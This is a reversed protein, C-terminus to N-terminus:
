VVSAVKLSEPGPIARGHRGLVDCYVSEIRREVSQFSFERQARRRANLGLSKRLIPDNILRELARSLDRVYQNRNEVAIKIGSSADISRQPGGYDSTIVPLGCAMAELVAGGGNERLTPLCFIDSNVLEELVTKRDVHGRFDVTESLHHRAVMRKIRGLEEGGGLVSVRVRGRLDGRRSFLDEVAAILLSLGKLRVLRGVFTVRVEGDRPELRPSPIQEMDIITDFFTETRVRAERPVYRLLETTGVLIKSAHALYKRLLALRRVCFYFLGRIINRVSGTFRFVQLFGSPTGLGGGLPGVIYPVSLDRYLTNFSHIGAPTVFHVLQINYEDIDKLLRERLAAIFMMNAVTYAGIRRVANYLGPSVDVFTFEVSNGYDYTLIDSRHRSDVYVRVRFYRAVARLFNHAAGCETGRNPNLDIAVLAVTRRSANIINM